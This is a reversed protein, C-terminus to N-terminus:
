RRCASLERTTYADDDLASPLSRATSFVADVGIRGLLKELDARDAVVVLRGGDRAARRLGRLLPLLLAPEAREVATLDVVIRRHGQDLGEGIAKQLAIADLLRVHRRLVLVSATTESPTVVQRHTLPSSRM